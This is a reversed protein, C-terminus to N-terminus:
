WEVVIPTKQLGNFVLKYNKYTNEYYALRKGDDTLLSFTLEMTYDNVLIFNEDFESAAVAIVRTFDGSDNELFFGEEARFVDITRPPSSINEFYVTFTIEDLLSDGVSAKSVIEGTDIDLTWNTYYELEDKLNARFQAPSTRRNISEKRMRACVVNKTYPTAYIYVDEYTRPGISLKQSQGRENYASYSAIIRLCEEHTWEEHNSSVLKGLDDPPLKKVTQSIECGQMPLIALLLFIGIMRNCNEMNEGTM